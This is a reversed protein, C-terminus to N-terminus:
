GNVSEPDLLKVLKKEVQLQYLRWTAPDAHDKFVQRHDLWYQEFNSALGEDEITEAAELIWRLAQACSDESKSKHLQADIAQWFGKLAEQPTQYKSRSM